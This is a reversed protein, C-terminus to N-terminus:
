DMNDIDEQTIELCDIKDLCNELFIHICSDNKRPMYVRVLTNGYEDLHKWTPIMFKSYGNHNNPNIFDSFKEFILLKTEENIGLRNFGKPMGLFIKGIGNIYTGPYHNDCGIGDYRSKFFCEPYTGKACGSCQYNKIADAVKM